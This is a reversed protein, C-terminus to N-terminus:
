IRGVYLKTTYRFSVQGNQAHATFLARLGAVFSAHKPHEPAPTYSSSLSRGIFSAQDFQQANPFTARAFEGDAFYPALKNATINRHGVAKYDLAEKQLFLDYAAQFPDSTDRENWMIVLRGGPRLIRRFERQSRAQDFWHVATGVIVFDISNEDLGTSESQGDISIFNSHKALLQEAAKRMPDNPEVCFVRNGNELFRESSIGTGSGIDAIISQPTLGHTTTLYPIIQPPYNPRFKVYNEVRNSFRASNNQSSM